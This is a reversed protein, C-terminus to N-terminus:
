SATRESEWILNKGTGVSYSKTRRIEIRRGLSPDEVEPTTPPSRDAADPPLGVIVDASISPVVELILFMSFILRLKKAPVEM